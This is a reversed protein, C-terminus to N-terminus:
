AGAPVAEGQIQAETKRTRKKKDIQVKTLEIEGKLDLLAARHKLKQEETVHDMLAYSVCMKQLKALLTDRKEILEAKSESSITGELIGKKFAEIDFDEYDPITDGDKDLVPQGTTSDVKSKCCAEHTAQCQQKFRAVIASAAQKPGLYTVFNAFDALIEDLDPAPYEIGKKGSEDTARQYPTLYFNVKAGNKESVFALVKEPADAVPQQTEQESM